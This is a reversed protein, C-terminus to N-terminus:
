LSFESVRVRGFRSVIIYRIIKKKSRDSGRYVRITMGFQDENYEMLPNYELTGGKPVTFLARGRSEYIETKNSSASLWSIYFYPTLAISGTIQFRQKTINSRIYARELWAALNKAEEIAAKEESKAGVTFTLPVILALISIVVLLEILSFGLFHVYRTRGNKLDQESNKIM